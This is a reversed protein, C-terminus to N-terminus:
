QASPHTGYEGRLALVSAVSVRFYHAICEDSLGLDILAAFALEPIPWISGQWFGKSSLIEGADRLPLSAISCSTIASRKTAQSM